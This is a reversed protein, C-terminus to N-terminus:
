RFGIREEQIIKEGNKSLIKLFVEVQKHKQDRVEFFNFYKDQCEAPLLRIDKTARGEM